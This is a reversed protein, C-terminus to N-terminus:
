ETLELRTGLIGPLNTDPFWSSNQHQLLTKTLFRKQISMVEGELLFGMLVCLSNVIRLTKQSFM